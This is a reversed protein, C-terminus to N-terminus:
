YHQFLKQPYNPKGNITTPVLNKSINGNDREFLINSWCQNMTKNTSKLNSLLLCVITRQKANESKKNKIM